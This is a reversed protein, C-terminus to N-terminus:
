QQSPKEFADEGTSVEYVLKVATMTLSMVGCPPCFFASVGLAGSITDYIAENGSIQGKDYQIATIGLGVVGLIAAANKYTGAAKLASAQSKQLGGIGKNLYKGNAGKEFAKGAVYYNGNKGIWGYDSHVVKELGGVFGEAGAVATGARGWDYSPPSVVVPALTSINGDEDGYRMEGEHGAERTEFDITEGVYEEGEALNNKTSLDGASHVDARYRLMGEKDKTYGEAGMGTPDLYYIPNNQNAVYPSYTVFEEALPDVAWWRGVWPDYLRASHDYWDLDLEPIWEQGTYTYRNPSTAPQSLNLPDGTPAGFAYFSNEQLIEAAEVIGNANADAFVVRANGLHDRLHYEVRNVANDSFVIRGEDHNMAEIVVGGTPVGLYEIGNIYYRTQTNAGDTITRAWKVGEVDYRNQIKHTADINIEFPLNLFNYTNTIGKGGDYIMNGNNDYLYGAIMSKFGQTQSAIDTVSELQGLSNYVYDLDDIIQGSIEMPDDIGTRVMSGIDGIPNAYTITENFCNERLYSSGDFTRQTSQTLRNLGDYRYGYAEIPKGCSQTLVAAINGNYRGSANAAIPFNNYHLEEVFLDDGLCPNYANVRNIEKRLREDIPGFRENSIPGEGHNLLAEDINDRIQQCLMDAFLDKDMSGNFALVISDNRLTDFELMSQEMSEFVKKIEVEDLEFMENVTMIRTDIGLMSPADLGLKLANFTLNIQGQLMSALDGQDPINPDDGGIVGQSCIDNINTLWNRGNYSYDITQLPMWSTFQNSMDNGPTIGIRKQRLLDNEFYNQQSIKTVVGDLDMDVSLLRQSHDYTYITKIIHGDFTERQLQLVQDYDDYTVYSHDEGLLHTTHTETMRGYTDYVYEDVIEDSSVVNGDMLKKTKSVLKGTTIGSTGFVNEIITTGNFKIEIIESYDNYVYTAVNGNPDTVTSLRRTVPEYTYNFSGSQGPVSKSLIQNDLTYLYSFLQGAPNTITGVKGNSNYTYKTDANETATVKRRELITRGLKDTFVSSINNDEDITTTKYLQNATWGIVEGEANSGYTTRVDKVWCTPKSRILRGDPNDEYEYKVPCGKTPDTALITRHLEDLQVEQVLDQELATYSQAVSKLNRGLGDLYSTSVDLVGGVSTSSEIYAQESGDAEENLVHYNFTSTNAGNRNSLSHLRLLGDYTYNSVQGDIGTSSLLLNNSSYLGSWTRTGFTKEILKGEEWNYETQSFGPKQIFGPKGYADYDGLTAKTVYINGEKVDVSNLVICGECPGNMLESYTKRVASSTIGSAVVEVPIFMNKEVMFDINLDHPYKYTTTQNQIPNYVINRTKILQPYTNDYTYSTTTTVGDVMDVVSSL